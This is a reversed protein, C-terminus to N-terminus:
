QTRYQLCEQENDTPRGVVSKSGSDHHGRPIKSLGHTSDECPLNRKKSRMVAGKFVILLSSGVPPEMSTILSCGTEKPFEDRVDKLSTSQPGMQNNCVWRCVNRLFKNLCVLLLTRTSIRISKDDILVRYYTQLRNRTVKIGLRQISTISVKVSRRTYSLSPRM